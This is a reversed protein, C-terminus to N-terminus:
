YVKQYEIYDIIHNDNYNDNYNDKYYITIFYGDKSFHYSKYITYSFGSSKLLHYDGSQDVKEVDKWSTDKKEWLSMFDDLTKDSIFKISFNVYDDPNYYPSQGTEANNYNLVKENLAFHVIISYTEGLIWVNYIKGEMDETEYGKRISNGHENIYEICYDQAFDYLTKYEQKELRNTIIELEQDSYRKKIKNNDSDIISDMQKNRIKVIISENCDDLSQNRKNDLSQCGVLLLILLSLIVIKKM